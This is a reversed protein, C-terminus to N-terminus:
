ASAEAETQTLPMTVDALASPELVRVALVLTKDDDTRANVRDSALFAALQTEAQAADAAQATFALLPQFFPAHPTYDPLKLALRMLGDTMIALARLPQGYTQMDLHDLADDMTLFYTENAYEGRPPPASALLERDRTEAVLAGDGIRGMTLWESAAIACTLTTAFARLPADMQAALETLRAHAQRFAEVMLLHWDAETNPKQAHYLSALADMATQVACQAGEAARAASGAGDAVAILLAGDPLVRYRHADQCPLALREHTTGRVSAGIVRWASHPM